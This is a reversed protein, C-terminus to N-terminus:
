EETVDLDGTLDMLLREVLNKFENHVSTFELKNEDENNFLICNKDLFSMVPTKWSPSHLFGMIMFYCSDEAGVSPTDNKNM